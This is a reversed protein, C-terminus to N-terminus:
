VCNSILLVNNQLNNKVRFSHGSLTEVLATAAILWGTIIQNDFIVLQGSKLTVLSPM